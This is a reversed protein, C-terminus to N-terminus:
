EHEHNCEDNDIPRMLLYGYCSQCPNKAFADYMSAEPKSFDDRNSAKSFTSTRTNREDKGNFADEKIESAFDFFNNQLSALKKQDNKLNQPVVYGKFVNPDFHVSNGNSNKFFQDKDPM